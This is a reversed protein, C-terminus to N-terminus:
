VKEMFFGGAQQRLMMIGRGNRTVTPVIRGFRKNPPQPTRMVGTRYTNGPARAGMNFLADFNNIM